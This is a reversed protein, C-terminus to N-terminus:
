YNFSNHKISGNNMVPVESVNILGLNNEVGLRLFSKEFAPLVLALSGSLGFDLRKYLNTQNEKTSIFFFINQRLEQKLLFATYFGTGAELRIKDGIQYNYRVPITLYTFNTRATGELEFSNGDGDLILVTVDQKNGKKDYILSANLAGKKM